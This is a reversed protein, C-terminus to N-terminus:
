EDNGCAESEHEGRVCLFLVVMAGSGQAKESNIM